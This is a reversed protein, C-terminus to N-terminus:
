RNQVTYLINIKHSYTHIGKLGSLQGRRQKDLLARAFIVAALSLLYKGALWPTCYLCLSICKETVM